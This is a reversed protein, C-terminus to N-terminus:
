FTFALTRGRPYFYSSSWLHANSARDAAICRISSGGPLAHAVQRTAHGQSPHPPPTRQVAPVRHAGDQSPSPACADGARSGGGPGAGHRTHM